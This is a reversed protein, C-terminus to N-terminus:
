QRQLGYTRNRRIAKLMQHTLELASQKAFFRRHESVEFGGDSFGLGPDLRCFIVTRRDWASQILRIPFGPAIKFVQRFLQRTGHM